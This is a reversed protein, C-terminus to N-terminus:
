KGLLLISCVRGLGLPEEECNKLTATGYTGSQSPKALLTKPAEPIDPLHSM